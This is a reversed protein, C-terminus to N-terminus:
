LAKRMVIMHCPQTAEAPAPFPLEGVVEYGLRAYYPPLEERLNVVHIDVHSCGAGALHREAADILARGLGRGKRAPDIALMGFYGHPPTVRVFVVGIAEAENELVLFAGDDMMTRVGAPTTRDGRKFFREVEFARNVLAAITGADGTGAVRTTQETV